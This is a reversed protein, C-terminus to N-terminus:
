QVGLIDVLGTIELVRRVTPGTSEMRISAGQEALLRQIRLLESIGASDMFSLERADVVVGTLGPARLAPDIADSVASATFADFEGSLVLHLTPGDREARVELAM